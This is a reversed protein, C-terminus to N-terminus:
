SRPCGGTMRQVFKRAAKDLFAGLALDVGVSIAFAAVGFPGALVAAVATAIPLALVIFALVATVLTAIIDAALEGLSNVGIERLCQITDTFLTILGLVNSLAGPVGGAITSLVNFLSELFSTECGFQQPVAAGGVVISQCIGPNDQDSNSGLLLGGDLREGSVLFAASSSDPDEVIYGVGQFRLVTIDSQPVVITLGSNTADFFEEKVEAPINLTPIVSDGNSSTIKVAPVGQDNAAQLLSSASGWELRAPSQSFIQQPLGSELASGLTGQIRSVAEATRTDGNKSMTLVIDRDIDLSIGKLAAGSAVGFLTIPELDLFCFGTSPYRLTIADAAGATFRSALDVEHFWLEVMSDLMREGIKQQFVDGAHDSNLLNKIGQFYTSDTAAQTPSIGSLDMGIAVQEGVTIHNSIEPTTITPSSFAYTLIQASGFPVPRAGMIVEENWRFVPQFMVSSSLLAGGQLTAESLAAADADSAAVYNLALRQSSIEPLSITQTMLPTGLVDKLTLTLSHRLTSPIVEFADSTVLSKFPLGQPLLRLPTPIIAKSGISQAVAESPSLGIQSNTIRDTMQDVFSSVFDGNIHTLFGTNKDIQSGSLLDTAFTEPTTPSLQSFDAKSTYSYQKFSADLDIWTNGSLNLSGGSRAYEVFSKVWVHELKVSFVQGSQNLRRVVSPVGGSAFLSAAAEANTFGGAWNKFKEIPVEITGMQYRAPIGSYRLLAILLSSTDFANGARNEMCLEAGQISGWTPTFEINNHVWNYIKVPNRDLSDALARIEPTFKVEITEALDAATPLSTNFLMTPLASNSGPKRAHHSRVLSVPDKSLSGNRDSYSKVSSSAVETTTAFDKQFARDWEARTLKPAIPHDAKLSRHPLKHPDFKPKADKHTSADLFAITQSVPGDYDVVQNRGTLKSWLGTARSNAAEISAIDALLTKYKARYEAVFQRQRKLIEDSLNKDKILNELEAFYTENKENERALSSKLSEIKEISAFGPKPASKTKIAGEKIADKLEGLLKDFRKSGGASVISATLAKQQQLELPRTQAYITGGGFQWLLLSM